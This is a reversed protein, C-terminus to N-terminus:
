GVCAGNADSELLVPSSRWAPLVVAPIPQVLLLHLLSQISALDRSASEAGRLVAFPFALVLIFGSLFRNVDLLILPFDRRCVKELAM